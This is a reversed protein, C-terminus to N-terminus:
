DDKDKSDKVKEGPQAVEVSGFAGNGTVVVESTGPTSCALACQTNGFIVTGKTTAHTGPPVEVRVSGFLMGVDVTKQGPAVMVTRHGFIAVGDAAGVVQTGAFVALAAVAVGILGGRLGGHGSRAPPVSKRVEVPGATAAAPKPAPPDSPSPLDRVLVDLESQTRAAFCAAAREDYEGLTLVGDAQAARLRADVAQRERDGIRMEPHPETM